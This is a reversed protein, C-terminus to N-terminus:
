SLLPFASFLVWFVVIQAAFWLVCTVGYQHHWWWSSLRHKKIKLFKQSFVQMRKCRESYGLEAYIRLHRSYAQYIINEKNFMGFKMDVVKVKRYRDSTRGTAIKRYCQWISRYMRLNTLGQSCEWWLYKIADRCIRQWITKWKPMTRGVEGPKMCMWVTITRHM